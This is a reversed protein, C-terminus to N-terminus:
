TRGAGGTALAMATSGFNLTTQFLATIVVARWSPPRLPTGAALMAGFLVVVALVSRQLNLVVPDANRLALKMAIWNLGWVVTLAVLLVYAGRRSRVRLLGGARLGETV